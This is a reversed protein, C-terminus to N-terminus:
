KCFIQRIVSDVLRWISFVVVLDTNKNIKQVIKSIMPLEPAFLQVHSEYTTGEAAEFKNKLNSKAKKLALRRRKTEPLLSKISRADAKRKLELLHKGGHTISPSTNINEHVNLIIEPGENKNLIALAIRIDGSPSLAYMRAKPFKSAITNNLSENVNSSQGACYRDSHEALSEFINKLAEFLTSDKFGEGINAHKYDETPKQLYTCWSIDCKDHYNFCHYPINRVADAVKKSDPANQSIAAAFSWQLYKITVSNLEKHSKKIKYLANSVGKTTHNKDAQKIIEYSVSNRASLIASSDNDAVIIGLEINEKSLIDNDSVLAIAAKPEMGKASGVYNLRCDHDSKDHGM